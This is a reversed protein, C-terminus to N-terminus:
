RSSTAARCAAVQRVVHRRLHVHQEPGAPAPPPPPSPNAGPVYIVPPPGPAWAPVGLRRRGARGAGGRAVPRAPEGPRPHRAAHPQLRRCGDWGIPRQWSFRIPRKPKTPLAPPQDYYGHWFTLQQQGHAPDDVADLDFTLHRPPAEFSAIFVDRLRKLSQIAIANECRSLTPQGALDHAEPPRDAVLKFVPDARLTDHDNQDEYGALIGYVRSRVM